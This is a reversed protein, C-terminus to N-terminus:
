TSPCVANADHEATVARLRAAERQQALLAIIIGGAAFTLLQIISDWRYGDLIGFPPIYLTDLVLLSLLIAFLAPGLGWFLAVFVVAFLLFTGPFSFPSVLYTEVLALRGLASWLFSGPLGGPSPALTSASGWLLCALHASTPTCFQDQVSYPAYAEGKEGEEEVDGNLSSLSSFM